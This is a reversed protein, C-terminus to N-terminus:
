PSQATASASRDEFKLPVIVPPDRRPDITCVTVGLDPVTAVMLGWGYPLWQLGHPESNTPGPYIDALLHASWKGDAQRAIWLEEGHALDKASFYLADGHSVLGYPESSEPGPIIDAVRYTGQATGDTVWLERGAAADTARFFVSDGVAVFGYPDSDAPGPNIDAIQVTGSATGDSKWLERGSNETRAQFLVQDNWRIFQSPGSSQPGPSLDALLEMRSDTEDYVWPEYGHAEDANAFFVTTGIRVMEGTDEAVDGIEHISYTVFDYRFLVNGRVADSLGVFYVMPGDQYVRRTSAMSGQPGPFLDEVMATQGALGNTCWLERGAHLTTAYFLVQTEYAAVPVPDCGMPGPIIDKIMRVPVDGGGSHSGFWLEEGAEPTTAAFVFGGIPRDTFAHPNSSEPGPVIDAILRMTDPGLGAGWPERGHVDDTIAGYIVEEIMTLEGPDAGFPRTPAPMATTAPGTVPAPETSFMVFIAAALAGALVIASAGLVLLSKRISTSPPPGTVRAHPRRDSRDDGTGIRALPATDEALMRFEPVSRLRALVAAATAPRDAPDRAMLGHVLGALEPSINPVHTQLPIPTGTLVDHMLAAPTQTAFAPVGAIVEYLMVGAAFLDWQPTVPAGHWAEPPSYRPTGWLPGSPQSPSPSGDVAFLARAIGFDTLMVRGERTVLLNAPKLDCHIVGHEHCAALADLVQRLVDTAQSLPTPGSRMLGHLPTGEVFQMGIAIQDQFSDIRYIRVINPHELRAALRAERLFRDSVGPDALLHPHLMKVAVRRDLRTDWAEHVTGMGGSGVVRILRYMGGGDEVSRVDVM